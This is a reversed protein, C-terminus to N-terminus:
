RQDRRLAIVALHGGFGLSIQWFSAYPSCCAISLEVLASAGLCHGLLEKCGLRPISRWPGGALACCEYDDGIATGTAHCVIVAPQPAVTWLAALAAELVGPDANRTASAPDSLRIGAVLQWPGQESLAAVGLGEAPAFGRTAAGAATVRSRPEQLGCSVGLSAFGALVLPTLNCDTAACLGRRIRGCAMLDAVALISYLGTACAAAVPCPVHIGAGLARALAPGQMGPWSTPFSASGGLLAAISGKSSSVSWGVGGPLGAITAWAPEALARLRTMADDHGGGPLRGVFGWQADRTLSGRGAEVQRWAMVANGASSLSDWARVHIGAYCTLPINGV